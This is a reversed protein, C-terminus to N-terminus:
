STANSAIGECSLKQQNSLPRKRKESTIERGQMFTNEAATIGDEKLIEGRQKEDYKWGAREFSMPFFSREIRLKRPELDTRKESIKSGSM